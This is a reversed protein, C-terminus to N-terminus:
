QFQKRDYRNSFSSILAKSFIVNM